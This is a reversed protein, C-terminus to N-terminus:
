KGTVMHGFSFDQCLSINQPPDLALSGEVDCACLIFERGPLIILAADCFLYNISFQITQFLVAEDNLQTLLHSNLQITPLVYFVQFSYKNFYHAWTRKFIMDVFTNVFWKYKIYIYIYIYVYTHTHTLTHKQTHTHTHTHTYVPGPMTYGVM